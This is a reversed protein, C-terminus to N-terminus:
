KPQEPVRTPIARLMVRRAEKRRMAEKEDERCAAVYKDLAKRIAPTNEYVESHQCGDKERWVIRHFTRKTDATGVVAIKSLHDGYTLCLAKFPTFADVKDIAARMAGLSPKRTTVGGVVATFVGAANVTIEVGKHNFTSM